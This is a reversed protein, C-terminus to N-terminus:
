SGRMISWYTDGEKCVQMDSTLNDPNWDKLAGMIFSMLMHYKTM